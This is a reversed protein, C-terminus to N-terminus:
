KCKCWPTRRTAEGLQMGQYGDYSMCLDVKKYSSFRFRVSEVPKGTVDLITLLHPDQLDLDGIKLSKLRPWPVASRNDIRVRYGRTNTAEPPAVKWWPDDARAAVCVTGSGPDAASVPALLLLVNLTIFLIKAIPKRMPAKEFRLQRLERCADSE